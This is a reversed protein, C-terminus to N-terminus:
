PTKGYTLAAGWLQHMAEDLHAAFVDPTRDEDDFSRATLFEVFRTGYTGCLVLHGDEHEYFEPWGEEMLALWFMDRGDLILGDPRIEISRIVEVPKRVILWNVFALALLAVGNIAVSQVPSHAALLWGDLGTATSFAVIRWIAHRLRVDLDKFTILIGGEPTLTRRYDVYAGPAPENGAAPNAPALLTPPDVPAKRTPVKREIPRLSRQIFPRQVPAFAGRPLAAVVRRVTPREVGIAPDNRVTSMPHRVVVSRAVTRPRTLRLDRM